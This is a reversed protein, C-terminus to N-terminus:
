YYRDHCLEGLVNFDVSDVVMEFTRCNDAIMLFHLTSSKSRWWRSGVVAIRHWLGSGGKIRERCEEKSIPLIWDYFFAKTDGERPSELAFYRGWAGAPYVTMGLRSATRLLSQHRSIRPPVNFGSWECSGYYLNSSYSSIERPGRGMISAQYFTLWFTTTRTTLQVPEIVDSGISFLLRRLSQGTM